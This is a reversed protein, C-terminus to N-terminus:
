SLAWALKEGLISVSNGGIILTIFVSKELRFFVLKLFSIFILM